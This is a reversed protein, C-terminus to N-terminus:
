PELTLEAHDSTLQALNWSGDHFHCHMEVSDDIAFGSLDTGPPMKCTVLSAHGPAQVGVYDSGMAKLSGVVTFRPMDSEPWSADSSSISKLYFGAGTNVCAFEVADGVAFGRLDMGAPLSCQVPDSHHAVQVAVYTSALTSLVGDLSFWEKLGGDGYELSSNGSSLGYLLYHGLTPSYKCRIEVFDGLAFGRLDQGPKLACAVTQAGPVSVVVKTPELGSIFGNLDLESSGDGPLEATKSKLSVLVFRGGDFKCSMSVLQGVAFGSLDVHPPVACTVPQPHREVAVAVSTPSLAALLGTVSFWNDGMDVGDDDGSDDSGDDSADENDIRVLTFSGDPEVTVVLSIEDGPELAPLDFGDPVNAHVLGRHLVALDLVSETTSLYIGELELEDVHGIPQPEDDCFLGAKAVRAGLSVRDGPRLRMGLGKRLSLAFVSRGGSLFLRRGARKVVVARLRARSARRLQKTGSAAFTGDPLRAAKVSVVAGLGIRRFAKPARVTRLAGNGSATVLAKRKPNKAIVVGNWAAAHAAAPAVLM